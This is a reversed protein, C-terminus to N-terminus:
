QWGKLRYVTKVMTELALRAQQASIMPNNVQFDEATACYRYITGLGDIGKIIDFNRM